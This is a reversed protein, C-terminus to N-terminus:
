LKKLFLMIISAVLGLGSMIGARTAWTLNREVSNVREMVALLAERTAYNDFQREITVLRRQINETREDIRALLSNSSDGVNDLV